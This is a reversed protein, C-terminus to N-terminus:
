FGIRLDFISPIPAFKSQMCPPKIDTVAANIGVSRFQFFKRQDIFFRAFLNEAFDLFVPGRFHQKPFASLQNLDQTTMPYADHIGSISYAVKQYTRFDSRQGTQCSREFIRNLFPEFIETNSSYFPIKAPM